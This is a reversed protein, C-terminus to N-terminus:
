QGHLTNAVASLQVKFAAPNARAQIIIQQLALRSAPDLNQMGSPNATLLSPTVYKTLAPPIVLDRSGGFGLVPRETEVKRPMAGAPSAVGAPFPETASSVAPQPQGHGLVAMVITRLGAADVGVHPLSIGAARIFKDPSFGLDGRAAAVGLTAVIILMMLKKM